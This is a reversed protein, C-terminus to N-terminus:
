KISDLYRVVDHMDKDTYQDLLDWHAQLPDRVEVKVQPTRRWSRQEGSGTKLSVDFDDVRVLDGTVATAGQPTVTVQVPKTRRPFMVRQQLDVADKFRRGIDKLDGTVSHCATCKASFFVRGAAADGTLVNPPAEPNRNKATREVQDKLFHTIDVVQADSLDRKHGTLRKLAPGLENGLRDRLVLASRILDPADETGKALAGHCNICHQTYLARGRGAAAPNVQQREYPGAQGWLGLSAVVIIFSRKMGPIM